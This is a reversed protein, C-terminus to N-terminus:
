LTHLLPRLNLNTERRSHLVIPPFRCPGGAETPERFIDVATLAISAQLNGLTVPVRCEVEVKWSASLDGESERDPCGVGSEKSVANLFDEWPWSAGM